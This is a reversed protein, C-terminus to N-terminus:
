TPRGNGNKKAALLNRLSRLRPLVEIEAFLDPATSSHVSVRNLRHLGTDPTNSSSEVLFVAQHGSRRLHVLLEDTLDESNGYPVSFSRVPRGTMRELETKNLVIERDFDGGRLTRCFVHSYTHNGIEFNSSVLSRLEDRDLNMKAKKALEVTNIGAACALASRFERVVPQPTVALFHTFVQDVSSLILDKRGTVGRAVSCILDLGMTNFIYCILNDIQLDENGVASANVFFVAPVGYRRLIPAARHAVSAYADDFTVLVPPRSFRKRRSAGLIDSLGIPTYYKALFRIVTEFHRTSLTSGLGYTFESPEDAVDHFLVCRLSYRLGLLNAMGFSFPMGWMARGLRYSLKRNKKNGKKPPIM